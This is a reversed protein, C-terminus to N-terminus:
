AFVADTAKEGYHEAYYEYLKHSLEDKTLISM